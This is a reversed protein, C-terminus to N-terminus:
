CAKIANEIEVRHEDDHEVMYEVLQAFDGREDGWPYLLDGPFQDLPIEDLANKFEERAQDWDALIQETSLKRQEKVAQQNFETEDEDLDPTVYETGDLFARLSKTVELDWTTIHGLLERIRWDSDSYVRLELDVGEIIKQIAIQSETLRELLRNKVSDSM